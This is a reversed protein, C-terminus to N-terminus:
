TKYNCVAEVLHGAAADMGSALGAIVLGYLVTMTFLLVAMPTRGLAASKTRMRILNSRASQVQGGRVHAQAAHAHAHAQAHPTLSSSPHRNNSPSLSDRRTRSPTWGCRGTVLLTYLLQIM